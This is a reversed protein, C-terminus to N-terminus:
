SVTDLAIRRAQEVTDIEGNLQARRVSELIRKFQPGREIGLKILDGGDLFPKPDLKEPPWELRERCFAVGKSPDTKQADAVALCRLIDSHLLLPQIESWSLDQAQDLTRWNKCIWAITKSEDTSLKWCKFIVGIGQDAIIPELLIAAASEFDGPDLRQLAAITNGWHLANAYLSSGVPLIAALLGSERLLEVALMRKSCALMRRMEAGIREGSVVTIEPAHKQIAALTEPELSFDFTAAFRIGRLMRLKDEEIREHPNGIARIQEAELDLQGDVYDIVKENIPDFFMGNITFDRRIADERADTFEVADPRRGDSYGTDRRFTAVEIQGASKPGLVTIVGFSAGISLTRKKGFVERVQDPTANTAVDYDKPQRGVLQDRVCGGAWLAEFGAQQLKQVVEVAFERATM